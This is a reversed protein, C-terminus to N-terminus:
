ATPTPPTAAPLARNGQVRVFGLNVAHGALVRKLKMQTIAIRGSLAPAVVNQQYRPIKVNLNRAIIFPNNNFSFNVIGAKNALKEAFKKYKANTAKAAPIWGALHWGVRSLLGEKERSGGLRNLDKRYTAYPRGGHRIRGWKDRYKRHTAAVEQYSGLMTKQHLWGLSQLNPNQFLENLKGTQRKRIYGAISKYFGGTTARSNFYSFDLPVFLRSLDAKINMRGEKRDRPRTFKMIHQLVYKAEEKVVLGYDVRAASALRALAAELERTRAEIQIM